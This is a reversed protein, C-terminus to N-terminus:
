PEGVVDMEHHVALYLENMHCHINTSRWVQRGSGQASELHPWGLPTCTIPLVLM